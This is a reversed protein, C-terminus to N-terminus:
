HRAWCTRATVSPPPAPCSCAPPAWRSYPGAGGGRRHWGHRALLAGLVAPDVRAPDPLPWPHAAAEGARTVPEDMPRHM